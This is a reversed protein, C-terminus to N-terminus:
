SLRQALRRGVSSKGAGMMGVLVISRLGLGAAIAAEPTAKRGAQQTARNSVVDVKSIRPWPEVFGADLCGMFRKDRRGSRPRLKEMREHSYVGVRPESM